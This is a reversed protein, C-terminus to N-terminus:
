KSVKQYYSRKNTVVQITYIGSTLNSLNIENNLNEIILTKGSMDLISVNEVRENEEMCKIHLLNQLPIPFLYITIPSVQTQIGFSNSYTTTGDYDVQKIRYYTFDKTLGTNDIFRYKSIKQNNGNGSVKGLVIWNKYDDLKEIEFYSNNIEFATEWDINIQGNDIETATTKIFKVPLPNVSQDGGVGFEWNNTSMGTRSLVPATNSGTNSQSVGPNSWSLATRCIMRLQTYDSISTFSTPTITAKFQGGVIGSNTIRWYGDISATSIFIPIEFLPLGTTGPNSSIFEATISGGNTPATTYEIVIPRYYSNTGVPFLGNISTNTSPSFWRKFPGFITGSTRTLTGPNSASTGLTLLMGNTNINTTMSLSNRVNIVNNMIKNSNIVQLNYYNGTALLQTTSNGYYLATSGDEWFTKNASLNGQVSVTVGNKVIMSDLSVSVSSPINLNFSNISDGIIIATNTGSVTWNASFSPAANNKIFYTANNSNFSTPPTGTGDTNSGWTSLNNLDGSIKNYFVPNNATTQNGSLVSSTLYNAFGSTGNYELVTFFYNTNTNLGTLIFTSGTDNYVIYNGNGLHAGNQFISNSLYPIGDTPLANTSSAQKCIVLRRTGNGKNFTIRMSNNTINTFLLNSAALGPEAYTLQNKLISISTGNNNSVIIDTKGDLDLDKAVVNLPSSGVAFNVASGLSGSSITGATATNQFVSVGNAINTNTVVDMKNDGNFDAAAIGQPGNGSSFTTATTFNVTAVVCLNRYVGINNSSYNGCILEPKTDGDIDAFAIGHPITGTTRSYFSSNFSIGSTSNNLFLYISNSVYNTFGIDPKTDGDYDAATVIAINGGSAGNLTTSLTFSISGIGTSTNRLVSITNSTYNATAIDKKGDGDFDAVAISGVVAGTAFTNASGFSINTTTTNKYVQIASSSLGIVVDNLGDNDFDAIVACQANNNTGTAFDLRTAFSSTSINGVTSINKYVSFSFAGVNPLVIDIKGDNDLDGADIRGVNLNASPLNVATAFSSTNITQARSFLQIVALLIVLYNKKM